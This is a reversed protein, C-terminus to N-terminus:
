SNTITISAPVVMIISANWYPDWFRSDRSNETMDGEPSHLLGISSNVNEMESKHFRLIWGGFQFVHSGTPVSIYIIQITSVPLIAWLESHQKSVRLKLFTFTLQNVYIFPWVLKKYTTQTVTYIQDVTMRIPKSKLPARDLTLIHVQLINLLFYMQIVEVLEPLHPTPRVTKAV